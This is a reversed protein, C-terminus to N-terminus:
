YCDTYITGFVKDSFCHMPFSDSSTPPASLISRTIADQRERAERSAADWALLNIEEETASPYQHRFQIALAQTRLKLQRHYGLALRFKSEDTAWQPNQRQLIQLYAVEDDTQALHYIDVPARAGSTAPPAPAPHISPENACGGLLVFCIALLLFQEIRSSGRKRLNGSSAYGM